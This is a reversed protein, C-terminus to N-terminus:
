WTTRPGQLSARAQRQTIDVKGVKGTNPRVYSRQNRWAQTLGAERHRTLWTPPDTTRPHSFTAALDINVMDDGGWGLLPVPFSGVSRPEPFPSTPNQVRSNFWDLLLELVSRVSRPEPIIRGLLLEPVSGLLLQDSRAPARSNIQGLPARSLSQGPKTGPLQVSRAPARSSIRTPTPGVSCFSPFQDQYSNIRGLSLEPVSGLLLQDLQAFARSNIKAPTLKNMRASEQKERLDEKAVWRGKLRYKKFLDFHGGRVRRTADPDDRGRPRPLSDPHDRPWNRLLTKPAGTALRRSPGLPDFVPQMNWPGPLAGVTRVRGVHADRHISQLDTKPKWQM